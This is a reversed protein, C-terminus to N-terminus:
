TLSDVRSIEALRERAREILRALVEPPQAGPITFRGALLYSPVGSIGNDRASRIEARVADELEDSELLRRATAVNLGAAGVADVLVDPDGLDRGEQFYYRFLIEMLAGQGAGHFREVLRHGNLTNPVRPIAAFDFELGVEAAEARIREPVQSADADAGYRASLLRQRPIGEAPLNPYLQYPLWRVTIGEGVPTALVQELRRKGIYCWPCVLDSYVAVEM